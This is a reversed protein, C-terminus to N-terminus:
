YFVKQLCQESIVVALVRRCACTPLKSAKKGAQLVVKACFGVSVQLLFSAGSKWLFLLLFVVSKEGSNQGSKPCKLEHFHVGTPM